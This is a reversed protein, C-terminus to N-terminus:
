ALTWATSPIVRVTLQVTTWRQATRVQAPWSRTQQEDYGYEYEGQAGPQDHAPQLPGRRHADGVDGGRRRRIGGGAALERRQQRGRDAVPQLRAGDVRRARQQM